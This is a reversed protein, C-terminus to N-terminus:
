YPQFRSAPDPLLQGDLRYQYLMGAKAQPDEATYYGEGDLSLPLERITQRDSNLLVVSVSKKNTAWTRFAVGNQTVEAGQSYRRHKM